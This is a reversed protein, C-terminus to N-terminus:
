FNSKRRHVETRFITGLHTTIPRQSVTLTGRQRQVVVRRGIDVKILTHLFGLFWASASPTVCPRRPFLALRRNTFEFRPYVELPSETTLGNSRRTSSASLSSGVVRLRSSLEPPTRASWHLVPSRVIASRRRRRSHRALLPMKSNAAAGTCLEAQATPVSVALTAPHLRDELALGLHNPSQNSPAVAIPHLPGRWKRSGPFM